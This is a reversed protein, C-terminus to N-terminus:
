STGNEAIVADNAMKAPEIIMSRNGIEATATASDSQSTTLTAKVATKVPRESLDLRFYDVDKKPHVTGRSAQVLQLPSAQEVTGNPEHEM